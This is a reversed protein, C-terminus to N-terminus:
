PNGVKYITHFKQVYNVINKLEKFVLYKLLPNHHKAQNQYYGLIM